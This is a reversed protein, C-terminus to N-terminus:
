DRIPGPLEELNGSLDPHPFFCVLVLDSFGTCVTAHPVGPPVVVLDGAVVATEREGEWVRGEGEAVYAVECSHPHRHPTRPGPPVRVVRVSCPEAVGPPLPNASRRGQLDTFRLEEGRFVPM